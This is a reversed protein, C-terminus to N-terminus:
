SLKQTPFYKVSVVLPFYEVSVVLLFYEVSVVLLIELLFHFLDRVMYGPGLGMMTLSMMLYLSVSCSSFANYVCFIHNTIGM